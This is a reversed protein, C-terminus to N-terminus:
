IHILSLDGDEAETPEARSESSPIDESLIEANLESAPVMRLRVNRKQGEEEVTEHIEYTSYYPRGLVLNVPFSGFKGISIVRHKM